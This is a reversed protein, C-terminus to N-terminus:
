KEAVIYIEKYGLIYGVALTIYYYLEMNIDGIFSLKQLGVNKYLLNNKKIKFGIRLLLNNINRFNWSFLHQHIDPEFSSRINKENPLVLILNGNKELKEYIKKLTEYPNEVHELVHSCIIIGYKEKNSDLNDISKIKKTECFTRAYKSIDYVERNKFLYVNQGLGGGYDLIKLDPHIGKFYIRKSRMAECLYIKSNNIRGNHVQSHYKEEYM